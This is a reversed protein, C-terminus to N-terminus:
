DFIALPFELIRSIGTLFFFAVTPKHDWGRAEDSM